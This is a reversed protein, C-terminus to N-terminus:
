HQNRTHVYVQDWRQKTAEQTLLLQQITASQRCSSPILAPQNSVFFHVSLKYMQRGIKKRIPMDLINIFWGNFYLFIQKAKSNHQLRTNMHQFSSLNDVTM